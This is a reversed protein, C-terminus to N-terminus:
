PAPTHAQSLGYLRLERQLDSVLDSRSAAGAAALAQHASKAAGVFDGSEAQAAALTRLVQPDHDGFAEVIARAIALARRGDRGTRDPNTALLWAVTLHLQANQPQSALVPEYHALAEGVRGARTLAVALNNHAELLNPRIALAQTFQAIAEEVLGQALCANGSQLHAEAFGPRLERARAAQELAQRAEGKQLLAYSLNNHADAHNPHRAILSRYTAIGEELRGLSLLANGYNNLIDPDASGKLAQEFLGLAETTQGAQLLAHGLNNLASPLKPQLELAHRHLTIAHDLEGESALLAGLNAYAKAYGPHIEIAARYHAKAEETRGLRALAHGLNNHAVYNGSTKALTHSWLDVDSRWVGVQHHSLPVLAGVVALMVAGLIARRHRLSAFLDSLGWALMVCVGTMALYTYRDARAQNGSQMLGIVPLLVGLFWLWGVALYRQRRLAVLAGTVGALTVGALTIESASLSTGPHPYFPVMGEPWFTQRLYAGYSTLANAARWALPVGASMTENPGPGGATVLVVALSMGFWPLKELVLRPLPRRGWRELPWFDLLLLVAPLTVVMPKSALGLGFLATVLLYRCPSPRAKAYAAYAWLTLVFFLGSLVDKREAVWAVSEVHLPHVAFVVAVFASPWFRGTLSLFAGLLSISAAAHFLVSMAHHGAAEMGFLEVDVMHSLLSLPRWFDAHIEDKSVGATLAWGVSKWSLGESVIPNETIFWTDDYSVFGFRLTQGYILVILGVLLASIALFRGTLVGPTAQASPTIPDEPPM